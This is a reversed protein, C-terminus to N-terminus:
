RTSLAHEVPGPDNEDIRNNLLRFAQQKTLRVALLEGDDAEVFWIGDSFQSAKVDGASGDSRVSPHWGVGNLHLKANKTGDGELGMASKPKEISSHRIISSFLAFSALNSLKANKTPMRRARM